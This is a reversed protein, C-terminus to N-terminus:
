PTTSRRTFILTQVAGGLQDSQQHLDYGRDRGGTVWMEWPLTSAHVHVTVTDGTFTRDLIAPADAVATARRRVDGGSSAAGIVGAVLAGAVVLLVLVILFGM